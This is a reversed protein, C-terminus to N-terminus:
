SCLISLNDSLVFSVNLINNGVNFPTNEYQWIIHFRHKQNKIDVTAMFTLADDIFVMKKIHM